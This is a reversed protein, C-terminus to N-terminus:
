ASVLFVWLKSLERLWKKFFIIHIYIVQTPRGEEWFAITAFSPRTRRGICSMSMYCVFILRLLNGCNRFWAIILIKQANQTMGQDYKFSNRAGDQLTKKFDVKATGGRSM